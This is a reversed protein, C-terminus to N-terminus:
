IFRAKYYDGKFCSNNYKIWIGSFDKKIFSYIIEPVYFKVDTGIKLNNLPLNSLSIEEFDSLNQFHEPNDRDPYYKKHSERSGKLWKKFNPNKDLNNIINVKNTM